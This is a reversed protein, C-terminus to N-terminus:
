NAVRSADITGDGNGDIELLLREGSDTDAYIVTGEDIPIEGTEQEMYLEGDSDYYRVTCDLTGDDVGNLVIDYGDIGYLCVM